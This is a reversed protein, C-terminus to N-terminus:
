ARDNESPRISSPRRLHASVGSQRVDKLERLALTHVPDRVTTDDVSTRILNTMRVIFQVVQSTPHPRAPSSFDFFEFFLAWLLDQLHQVHVRGRHRDSSPTPDSSDNARQHYALSHLRTLGAITKDVWPTKLVPDRKGLFLTPLTEDDQPSTALWVLPMLNRRDSRDDRLLSLLADTHKEVRKWYASRKNRATGKTAAATVFYLEGVESVESAIEQPRRSTLELGLETLTSIVDEVNIEVRVRHGLGALPIASKPRKM